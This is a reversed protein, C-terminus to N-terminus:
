KIVDKFIQAAQQLNSLWKQALPDAKIVRGNIERAILRASKESFQPQVFIVRVGEQRAHTILRILQAPKPNKGELEVPIQVLGYDRAFYGWSPHMVMFKKGQDGQFLGQFETDLAKIQKVFAQYNTTYFNRNEPALQILTQLIIRAQELVLRPSLWIHPDPIGKKCAAQHNEKKQFNKPKNEKQATKNEAKNDYVKKNHLKKDHLKKDHLKQDHNLCPKDPDNKSQIHTAMAIKKINWDTRVVAMAPNTAAIRDLWAGEFPVGIAFYVQTESLAAMQRPSPEYIAPNAGPAVMVQIEVRDKGIQQVFYSQPLISVCVQIVEGALTASSSLLVLGVITIIAKINQFLM